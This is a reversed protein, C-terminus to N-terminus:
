PQIEELKGIYTAQLLFKRMEEISSDVDGQAEEICDLGAKQADELTIFFDHSPYEHVFYRAIETAKTLNYKPQL